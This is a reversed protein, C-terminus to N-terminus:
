SVLIKSRFFPLLVVGHSRWVITILAINWCAASILTAIAAGSSGYRPILFINLIINFVAAAAVVFSALKERDAMTLLYGTPSSIVKIVQACLLISLVGLAGAYSQGFFIVLLDSGFIFFIIAIPITLIFILNIGKQTLILADNIRSSTYAASIRSSLVPNIAQAFFLLLSSLQLSVAYLGVDQTTSLLGLMFIDTQALIIYSCSLLFLFRGSALWQKKDELNITVKEKPLSRKMLKRSFLLSFLVAVSNFAFAEYATLKESTFFIFVALFLILLVVRVVGEPLPSLATRRLGNLIGQDLHLQALLIFTPIVVVLLMTNEPSLKLFLLISVVILSVAIISSIWIFRRTYCLFGFLSSIKQLEVYRAVYKVAASDLGLKVPLLLLFLASYVFSYLGYEAVDLLRALVVGGAAACVTVMGRSIITTFLDRKL